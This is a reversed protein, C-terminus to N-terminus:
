PVSPTRVRQALLACADGHSLTCARRLLSNARAVAEPGFRGSACMVGYVYCGSPNDNTCGKEFALLAGGVDTRATDDEVLVNGLSTCAFAIGQECAPALLNHAKVLDKTVGRGAQYLVGEGACSLTHGGDCARTLIRASLAADEHPGESMYLDGLIFCAHLWAGDCARTLLGIARVVDPAIGAGRLYMTGLNGCGAPTGMECSKSFLEAARRVDTPIGNADLHDVGLNNCGIGSGKQCATEDLVVSEPPPKSEERVASSSSRAATATERPPSARCAGLTLALAIAVGDTTRM